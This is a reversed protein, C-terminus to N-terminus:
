IGAEGCYWTRCQTPVGPACRTASIKDPLDELGYLDPHGHPRRIPTRFFTSRSRPFILFMQATWIGIGKVEVPTLSRRMRCGDMRDLRLSGNAV